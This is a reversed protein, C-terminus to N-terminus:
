ADAEEKASLAELCKKLSEPDEVNLATVDPAIRRVLGTLTSGPGFEIFTDVGSAIMNRITDTWRVPSSAQGALTEAASSLEYPQTTRNSYLPVSPASLNV